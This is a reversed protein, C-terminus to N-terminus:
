LSQTDVKAAAVDLVCQYYRIVDHYDVKGDGTIDADFLMEQAIEVPM